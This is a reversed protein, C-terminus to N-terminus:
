RGIEECKKYIDKFKVDSQIDVHRPEFALEDSSFLCFLCDMLQIRKKKIIKNVHNCM